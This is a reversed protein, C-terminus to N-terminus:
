FSLRMTLNFTRGDNLTNTIQGFNGGSLDNGPFAFQPTNFLNIAEARFMLTSEGPIKWSRAVALNVNQIGDKRHVNRGLDGRLDGPRLFGFAARPLLQRSTDPHNITRGLVSPDLLRPRDGAVGDVNGFGPGDSGTQIIFPTGTKLLVISHLDWRGFVKDFATGPGRLAPTRYTLRALAAHSQDFSSLGKVDGHVDYETQSRGMFADRTSGNNAYHAGLDIAKSMWYSFDVTLGGTGRLGVTAKGADFYARSGNLIRRIDFYRQDPRRQNVTKTAQAIGEVAPARNLVWGAILKHSRSGVYGLQMFLGSSAALDWSFNYQHSYPSVMDPAMRLITSRANPDLTDSAFGKLPDRLDPAVISLRLNGPPNFRYQSYTATFIEGFHTGYAGRLVGVPTRYAFGFTPAYNNCDCGYPIDSLANVEGPRGLLEYRFGFNLTLNPLASWKDGIFHQARWRRFGRRPNGIAQSIRSPTGYRLNTILDRGFDAAFMVLGVHGSSEIGNLQERIWNFGAFIQHNGKTTNLAGAYGYFNQVRDYPISTSGGITELQRGMWVAPGIATEDQVILSRVRRFEVSLDGTTVPSWARNWTMRGAHSGTTTNPNQGKILQFAEVHQKRFRYDAVLHNDGGFPLDIRGGLVDNDIEQPANTNHARPNIDSRNPPENPFVGLISSVIGRLAPDTALPVREEPLPILVNGNVNGRNRQQSVDLTLAAASRLPVSVQAGYDNKRAPQVDGVQFFSRASFLSNGHSEYLSGHFDRRGLPKVHIQRQPPNGFETGFYGHDAKFERTITASTGMRINLEKLVNNDVLTLQVNENRRSEGSETDVEGLLNLETRANPADEEEAAVGGAGGESVPESLLAAVPPVGNTGADIDVPSQEAVALPQGAVFAAVLWALATASRSLRNAGQSSRIPRM